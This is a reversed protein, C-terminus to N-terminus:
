RIGIQIETLHNRDDNFDMNLYLERNQGSLELGGAQIETLLNGYIEPFLSWPGPHRFSVCRFRETRLLSFPAPIPGEPTVPIAIQLQFLTDPNGDAGQYIWYLPGTVELGAEQSAAYLERSRVRVHDMMGSFNVRHTSCLMSMPPIELIEMM